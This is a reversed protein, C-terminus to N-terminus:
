QHEAPQGAVQLYNKVSFVGPVSNARIGAADKDAESDVVGYLAVNGNQVSIRIPKAPDIAYKNLSSFGYVTRAVEIRIREDNPSVPDVSIEDIVDKVGSTTSVLGVASDRSPYDHATGGLTVVGNQVGLTIADFVNGYGVRDYALKEALSKQLQADSVSPGAVTIENRVATVGKVKHTSKDADVKAEYDNVTGSLTAVGNADVNVQVDKFQSKNLKSKVASAVDQDAAAGAIGSALSSQPVVLFAAGLLVSLLFLKRHNTSQSM